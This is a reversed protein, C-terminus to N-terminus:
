SSTYYIIMDSLIVTYKDPTVDEVDSILDYSMLYHVTLLELSSLMM